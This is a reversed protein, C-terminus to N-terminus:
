YFGSILSFVSFTPYMGGANAVMKETIADELEQSIRRSALKEHIYSAIDLANARVVITEAVVHGLSIHPRATVFIRINNADKQITDIFELINRRCHYDECEDLADFILFVSPVYDACRLILQMVGRMDAENGRAELRMDNLKLYLDQPLEHGFSECIQKLMNTFIDSANQTIASKYDFYVYSIACESYFARNLHDIVTSSNM